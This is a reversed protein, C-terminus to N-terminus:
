LKLKNLITLVEEYLDYDIEDRIELFYNFFYEYVEEINEKKINNTM